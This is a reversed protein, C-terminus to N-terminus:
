AGRENKGRHSEWDFVVVRGGDERMRDMIREGLYERVEPVTLNSLILTSKSKEYRENLVDFLILKEAESGFQVGVEDLILIDPFVLSEVAEAETQEAGRRWTDKVTRVARMVTCFMATHGAKMLELAIGVAVHTKGTGPLGLFLAGRGRSEDFGGVFSKAFAVARRQGENTTVYSDLSRDQFREPIGARGIKAEWERRKRDANQAAVEAKRALDEEDVCKPCAAYRFVKGMLNITRVEHRGHKECVRFGEVAAQATMADM